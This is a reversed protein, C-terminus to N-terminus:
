RDQGDAVNRAPDQQRVLCGFLPADGDLGNTPSGLAEAPTMM